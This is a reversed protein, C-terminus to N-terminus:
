QKKISCIGLGEGVVINTGTDRAWQMLEERPFVKSTDWTGVKELGDMESRIAKIAEPDSRAQRWDLLTHVALPTRIEIGSGGSSIPPGCASEVSEPTNEPEHERHGCQQVPGCPM